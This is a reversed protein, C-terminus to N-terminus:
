FVAAEMVKKGLLCVNTVPVTAVCAVRVQGQKYMYGMKVVDGDTSPIDVLVASPLARIAREVM